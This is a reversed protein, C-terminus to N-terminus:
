LKGLKKAVRDLVGNLFRYSDQSSYLKSVDLIQNIIKKPDEDTFLIAGIGIRLLVLDVKFIREKKWNLVSEEIMGEILGSSNKFKIIFEKLSEYLNKKLKKNRYFEELINLPEDGMLECQYLIELLICWRKLNDIHLTNRGSM